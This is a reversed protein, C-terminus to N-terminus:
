VGIEDTLIEEPHWGGGQTIIQNVLQSMLAWGNNKIGLKRGERGDYSECQEVMKDNFYEIFGPYPDNEILHKIFWTYGNEKVLELSNREKIANKIEEISIEKNQDLLITLEFIVLTFANLNVTPLSKVAHINGCVRKAAEKFKYITIEEIGAAGLHVLDSEFKGMSELIARLKPTLGGTRELEHSPLPQDSEVYSPDLEKLKQMCVDQVILWTNRITAIPDDSSISDIKVEIPQPAQKDQDLGSSLSEVNQIGDKLALEFKGYKIKSVFSAIEKLSINDKLKLFIFLSLAPWTLNSLFEWFSM